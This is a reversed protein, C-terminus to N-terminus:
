FQKGHAKCRNEPHHDTRTNNYDCKDIVTKAFDKGFVSIVDLTRIFVDALEADFMKVNPLHNDNLNKRLGELAESVESHILALKQSKLLTIYHEVFDKGFIADLKNKLKKDKAVQKIAELDDWWGANKSQQLIQNGLNTINEIISDKDKIAM